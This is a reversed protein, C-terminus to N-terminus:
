GLSVCVRVAGNVLCQVYTVGPLCRGRPWQQDYPLMGVHLVNINLLLGKMVSEQIHVQWRIFIYLIPM